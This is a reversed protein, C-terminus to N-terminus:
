DPGRGGEGSLEWVAALDEVCILRSGGASEYAPLRGAAIAQRVAGETRGVLRGAETQTCWRSAERQRDQKLKTYDM